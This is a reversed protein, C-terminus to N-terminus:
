KDSPSDNEFVVGAVKNGMVVPGGSKGGNICADTQITLIEISSHAYKQPEVRTVIGKTVSIIDGDRPYGLAYITEGIFTYRRAGFIGFAKVEAKYKTPSGHKRVQLYSHDGVVHANTLIRRGSIAFGSSSYEKETTQWPQVVNPERSFSFIKVVSDQALDIDRLARPTASGLWLIINKNLVINVQILSVYSIDNVQNSM